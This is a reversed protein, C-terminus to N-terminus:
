AKACKWGELNVIRYVHTRSIHFRKSLNKTSNGSKFLTRIMNVKNWSLVSMPHDEGLVHTGKLNEARTVWRLNCLKNNLRNRDSHDVEKGIPCKGRFSELVIRHVLKPKVGSGLNICEYGNKRPRTEWTALIIPYEMSKAFGQGVGGLSRIRGLNSVEYRKNAGHIKQWVEKGSCSM